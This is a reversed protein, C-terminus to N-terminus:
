TDFVIKSVLLEALLNIIEHSFLYLLCICSIQGKHTTHFLGLSTISATSGHKLLNLPHSDSSWQFIIQVDQFLVVLSVIAFEFDKVHFFSVPLPFEDRQLSLFFLSNPSPSELLFITPSTSSPLASLNESLM